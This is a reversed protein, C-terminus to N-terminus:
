PRLMAKIARREDMAAYADAVQALPVTMDFVRGPHIKRSWVRQLLIPLYNRAPAMGGAVAVNRQFMERVPFEVGHPVGVYGVTSGARTLAVAQDMSEKTGVCELTADAGAGHTLEMVAAVGAEGREAIIDTAGFAKALEQRPAHRSMAIIRDAHMEAAALVGCLGVAGDGVVVITGSRHREVGAAVAAHWGTCMVDSLTLLDPLMHEDPAEPTAVLTGDALPVRVYESQNAHFVGGQVCANHYGARCNFCTGDCYGFPLVVFDGVAVKLVDKGVEVVEGICEHGILRPHVFPNIGRYNWLDSGCVCTAVVRVIADSTEILQPNDVEQVELKYPATLVTGRM